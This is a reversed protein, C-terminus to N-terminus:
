RLNIHRRLPPISRIAYSVLIVPLTRPKELRESLLGKRAGVSKLSPFERRNSDISQNRALSHPVQSVIAYSKTVVNEALPRDGIEKEGIRPEDLAYREVPRSRRARCPSYLEGSAHRDLARCVAFLPLEEEVRDALSFM